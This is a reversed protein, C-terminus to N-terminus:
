VHWSRVSDVEEKVEQSVGGQCVCVCLTRLFVSKESGADNVCLVCEGWSTLKEGAHEMIIVYCSMARQAM